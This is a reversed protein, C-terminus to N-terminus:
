APLHPIPISHALACPYHIRLMNIETAPGLDLDLLGLDLDFDLSLSRLSASPLSLLIRTESTKSTKALAYTQCPENPYHRRRRNLLQIFPLLLIRYPLGEHFHLVSRTTGLQILLILNLSENCNGEIIGVTAPQRDGHIREAHLLFIIICASDAVTARSRDVVQRTSL